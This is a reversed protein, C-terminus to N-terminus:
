KNEYFDAIALDVKSWKLTKKPVNCKKDLLSRKIKLVYGNRRMIVIYNQTLEVHIHSLEEKLSEDISELEPLGIVIETYQSHVHYTSYGTVKEEEHGNVSEAEVDLIEFRISFLKGSTDIHFYTNMRESRETDKM